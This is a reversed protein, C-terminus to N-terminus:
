YNLPCFDSIEEITDGTTTFLVVNSATQNNDQPFKQEYPTFRTTPRNDSRRFAPNNPQDSGPQCYSSKQSYERRQTSPSRSFKGNNRWNGNSNNFSGNRSRNEDNRNFQQDYSRRNDPSDNGYAFKPRPSFSQYTTPPIEGLDNMLITRTEERSIKAELGSNRDMIQDENKTLTKLSPSKKRQLEKM